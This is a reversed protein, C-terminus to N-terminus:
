FQKNIKLISVWKILHKFNNSKVDFIYLLIKISLYFNGEAFYM